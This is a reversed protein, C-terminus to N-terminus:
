KMTKNSNGSCAGGQRCRRSWYAPRWRGCTSTEVFVVCELVETRPCCSSRPSRREWRSTRRGTPSVCKKNAATARPCLLSGLRPPACWFARTAFLFIADPSARVPQCLCAFGPRLYSQAHSCTGVPQCEQDVGLRAQDAHIPVPQLQASGAVNLNLISHNDLM